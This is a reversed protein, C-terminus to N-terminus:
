KTHTLAQKHRERLYQDHERLLKLEAGTATALMGKLQELAEVLTLWSIDEGQGLLRNAAAMHHERRTAKDLLDPRELHILQRGITRLRPDQFTEVIAKRKPWEAEHFADMLKEDPEGVFGDYIQKEVHPSTPYEEKLTEFASILRKRLAADAQLTKARRELEKLGHELGRCSEPADEAPFLMPAANSKLRRLPKPSRDLRAALQAESLVLLSKPDVSLDYIYWEAGNKKNQGITTVIYSYPSGFYYDSVCFVREETIYNVVAAKTSFRMFSSWIDPAKEIILRCLFMMAEVDGMATHARNHKFGNASAVRDLDFVKQGEEDTPFKLAAPAFISCAQAIRMLDSRTNGDRNTLYPNHLTKYLAQRVLDEDFAISNWGIFLAPSWSLLKARIIRVMEYHSPLSPDTLQSVKVSTVRMAGPAPVVHPLLRCRIEFRDIVKLDADTQIAAFQLIQDFFTATGTTETVYFILSM